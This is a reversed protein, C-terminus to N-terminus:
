LTEKNRLSPDKKLEPVKDEEEEEDSEDFSEKKEENIIDSDIM